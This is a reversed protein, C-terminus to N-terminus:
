PPTEGPSALILSITVSSSALPNGGPIIFEADVSWVTGVSSIRGIYTDGASLINVVKNGDSTRIILRGVSGSPLSAPSEVRVYVDYTGGQNQVIRLVDSYYTRQYSPHLVLSARTSNETVLVELTTGSLDQKNANSGPVFMVPPAVQQISVNLPLYLFVGAIAVVALIAPIIALLLIRRRKKDNSTAQAM